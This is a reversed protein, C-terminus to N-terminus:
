WYWRDICVQQNEIIETIRDMIQGEPSSPPRTISNECIACLAGNNDSAFQPMDVAENNDIAMQPTEAPENNDIALIPTDPLDTESATVLTQHATRRARQWCLVCAEHEPTLQFM